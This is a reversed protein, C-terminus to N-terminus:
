LESPEGFGVIKSEEQSLNAPRLIRMLRKKRRCVVDQLRELAVLAIPIDVFMREHAQHLLALDLGPEFRVHKLITAKEAGLIRRM